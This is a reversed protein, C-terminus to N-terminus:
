KLVLRARIRLGLQQMEQAFIQQNFNWKLTGLSNEVEQQIGSKAMFATRNRATDTFSKRQTYRNFAEEIIASPFSTKAMLNDAFDVLEDPPLLKDGGEFEEYIRKSQNYSHHFYLATVQTKTFDEGPQLRIANARQQEPRSFPQWGVPIYPMEDCGVAPDMLFAPHLKYIVGAPNIARMPEFKKASHNWKQTAFFSAVSFNSTIDLYETALGYHQAIGRLNICLPLPQVRKDPSYVLNQTNIIAPHNVLAQEFYVARCLAAFLEHEHQIRDLGSLCQSYAQTQGRYEVHSFEIGSTLHVCDGKASTMAHLGEVDDSVIGRYNSQQGTNIPQIGLHRKLQYLNEFIMKSM